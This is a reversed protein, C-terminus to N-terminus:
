QITSDPAQQDLFPKALALLEDHCATCRDSNAVFASLPKDDNCVVCRRVEEAEGEHVVDADAPESGPRPLSFNVVLQQNPDADDPRVVAPHGVTYQLVMKAARQRRDPTGNALDDELAEVAAPTLAVMRQIARLTDETISERVVPQLEEKLLEHGVDPLRERVIDNVEREHPALAGAAGGAQAARKLRRSRAARCKPTDTKTDSRNSWFVNSCESCVIRHQAM